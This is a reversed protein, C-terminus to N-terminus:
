ATCLKMSTKAGLRPERTWLAPGPFDHGLLSYPPTKHVLNQNATKTPSPILRRSYLPLGDNTTRKPSLNGPPYGDLCLGGDLNGPKVDAMKEPNYNPQWKTRGWGDQCYNVKRLLM